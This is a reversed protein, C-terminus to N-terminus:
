YMSLSQHTPDHDENQCTTYLSLKVVQIVSADCFWNHKPRLGVLTHPGTIFSVSLGQSETDWSELSHAKCPRVILTQPPSYPPLFGPKVLCLLFQNKKLELTLSLGSKQPTPCLTCARPEQGCLPFQSSEPFETPLMEQLRPNTLHNQNTPCLNGKFM